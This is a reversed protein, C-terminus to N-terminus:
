AAQGTAATMVAEPTADRADFVAMVDGKAMVLIRDSM